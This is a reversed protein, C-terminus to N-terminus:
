SQLLSHVYGHNLNRLLKCVMIGLSLIEICTVPKSKWVPVRTNRSLSRGFSFRAREYKADGSNNASRRYVHSQRGIRSIQDLFVIRQIWKVEGRCHLRELILIEKPFLTWVYLMIRVGKSLEHRVLDCSNSRELPPLLCVTLAGFLSPFVDSESILAYMKAWMWLSTPLLRYLTRFMRWVHLVNELSAPSPVLSKCPFLIKWVTSPKWSLMWPSRAWPSSSPPEPCMPSVCTAAKSGIKQNTRM